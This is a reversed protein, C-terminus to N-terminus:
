SGNIRTIYFWDGTMQQASWKGNLTDLFHPLISRYFRKKRHTSPNFYFFGIQHRDIMSTIMGMLRRVVIIPPIGDPLINDGYSSEVFTEAVLEQLEDRTYWQDKQEDVVEALYRFELSRDGSLQIIWSHEGIDLQREYM